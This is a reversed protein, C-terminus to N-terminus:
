MDRTCKAIHIVDIYYRGCARKINKLYSQKKKKNYKRSNYNEERFVCYM